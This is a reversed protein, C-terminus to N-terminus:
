TAERTTDGTGYLRPLARRLLARATNRSMRGARVEEGTAHGLAIATSVIWSVPLTTDFEGSHLGRRAIRELYGIVPAHRALEGDPDPQPGAAYLLFPQEDFAQWSIEILRRLAEAAPLDDLHAADLAASAQATARDLLAEFLAERSSFHAYVTQRSTGAANAIAEVSARPDAGLVQGAAALIAARSREADSRRRRSRAPARDFDSM